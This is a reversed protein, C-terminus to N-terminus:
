GKLKRVAEKFQEGRDKYDKFMDFSAAAPSLLVVGGRPTKGFATKVIKEMKSKKLKLIEGKYAAKVLSNKIKKAAEGILVVLAINNRGSIIKGLGTYDLGKDSGGLILTMPESFSHIAAVTPQPSTAFSDNYFFINGVKDVLELRHELGQFSFVTSKITSTKIGTLSSACIAACVNEWNHKGKLKLELISGIDIMQGKTNLFIRENKVYSGFVKNKISFYFTEAKTLKSFDRPITYDYNIVALDGEKQYAVINKKSDVYEKKNKHWDLHDETINLVVAIHPSKNMDILQFSSLELIVWTDKTLKPLLELYPKGINGALFVKKGSNKLINYILTASTGKGKTGTVGIIKAPCLDFFLKIASSITTGNKQARVIKPLYRYFGPSRFIIDYGVLSNKLYDKGLIFRIKREDIGSFDLQSKERKDFVFFDVDEKLLFKVIDKGELGFGLVAVKKGELNQM